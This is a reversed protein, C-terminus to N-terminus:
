KTGVPASAIPIKTMGGKINKGANFLDSVMGSIQLFNELKSKKDKETPNIQTLAM